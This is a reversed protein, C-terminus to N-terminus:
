PVRTMWSSDYPTLPAVYPPGAAWDVCAGEPANCTNYTALNPTRVWGEANTPSNPQGSAWQFRYGGSGTTLSDGFSWVFKGLYDGDHTHTTDANMRKYAEARITADSKCIAEDRTYPNVCFGNKISPFYYEEALLFNWKGAATANYVCSNGSRQVSSVTVDGFLYGVAYMDPCAGTGAPPSAVAADSAQSYYGWNYLRATYAARATFGYWANWNREKYYAGDHATSYFNSGDDSGMLLNTAVPADSDNWQVLLYPRGTSQSLTGQNSVSVAPANPIPPADITGPACGTVTSTGTYTSSLSATVSYGTYPKVTGESADSSAGDDTWSWTLDALGGAATKTWGVGATTNERRISRQVLTDIPSVYAHSFVGTVTLSNWTDSATCTPAALEQWYRGSDARWDSCSTVGTGVGAEGTVGALWGAVPANNTSTACARASYRTFDGERRDHVASTATTASRWPSSKAAAPIADVATTTNGSAATTGPGGGQQEAVDYSTIRQASYDPTTTKVDKGWGVFNQNQSSMVMVDITPVGPLGLAAWPRSKAGCQVSGSGTYTSGLAGWGYPNISNCRQVSFYAWDGPTTTGTGTTGNSYPIVTPWSSAFQSQSPSDVGDLALSSVRYFAKDRNYQPATWSPSKGWSLSVNNPAYSRTVDSVSLVGPAPVAVYGNVGTAPFSGGPFSDCSGAATDGPEMYCYTWPSSGTDSVARVRVQFARSFLPGGGWDSTTISTASTVNSGSTTGDFDFSAWPAIVDGEVSPNMERVEAEYTKAGPVAPWSARLTPWSTFSTDNLRGGFWADNGGGDTFTISVNPAPIQVSVLAQPCGTAETGGVTPLVQYVISSAALGSIDDVYKPVSANPLSAVSLTALTSTSGAYTRTIRYSAANEVPPWALTVTNGSVTRTVSRPCMPVALEGITGGPVYSNPSVSKSRSVPVGADAYNASLTITVMSISGRVAPSAPTFRQQKSDFFRFVPVCSGKGGRSAATAESTCAPANFGTFDVLTFPQIDPVVIASQASVSAPSTWARTENCSGSEVTQWQRLNSVGGVTEVWWQDIQCDTGGSAVAGEINRSVGLENSTARFITSSEDVARVIEQLVEEVRFSQSRLETAERQSKMIWTTVAVIGGTLIGFAVLAAIMEWMTFGLDARRHRRTAFMHLTM